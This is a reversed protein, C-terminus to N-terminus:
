IYEWHLKIGNYKGCSKEKNNCCEGIHSKTTGNLWISAEKHSNFVMNTEICLVKKTLKERYKKQKWLDLKNNSMKELTKNNYINKKGKNWSPQGIKKLRAKEISERNMKRGTLAKSIKECHEQSFSGITNGGNDINYGYNPNNSKYKKILEIEKEEAQQKTTKELLIKHEINQWGYKKIARYFLKQESYGVGNKWRKNPEQKTIGIYKKGNPCIHMYVKYNNEEM